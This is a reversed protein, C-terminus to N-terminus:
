LVQLIILGLGVLGMGILRAMRIVSKERALDPYERITWRLMREPQVAILTGVLSLCLSVLLMGFNTTIWTQIGLVGRKSLATALIAFIVAVPFVFVLAYCVRRLPQLAPQSRASMPYSLIFQGKFLIHIAQYLLFFAALLAGVIVLGM